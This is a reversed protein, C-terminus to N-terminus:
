LSCSLVGTGGFFQNETGGVMANALIEIRFRSSIQSVFGLQCLFSDKSPTMGLINYHGLTPNTVGLTVPPNKSAGRWGFTSLLMWEQSLQLNVDLTIETECYDLNYADIANIITGATDIENYGNQQMTYYNLGLRPTIELKESEWFRYGIAGHVMFTTSNTTFKYQYNNVGLPLREGNSNGWTGGLLSETFFRKGIATTAYGLMTNTDLTVSAPTLIGGALQDSYQKNNLYGYSIGLTIPGLRKDMGFSFGVGQMDFGNVNNYMPQEAYYGTLQFWGMADPFGLTEYDMSIAEDLSANWSGLLGDDSPRLLEPEGDSKDNGRATTDATGGRGLRNSTHYSMRRTVKQITAFNAMKLMEVAGFTFAPSYQQLILDAQENTTASRLNTMLADLTPNGAGPVYNAEIARALDITTDSTGTVIEDLTFFEATMKNGTVTIDYFLTDFSHTANNVLTDTAYLINYDIGPTVDAGILDFKANEEIVIDGVTAKFKANGTSANDQDIYMVMLAEDTNAAEGITLLDAADAAEVTAGTSLHLTGSKFYIQDASGDNATPNQAVTDTNMRISGLLTSNEITLVDAGTGTAVAGTSTAGETLTYQDSPPSAVAMNRSRFAYGAKDSTSSAALSSAAIRGGKVTVDMPVTEALFAVADETQSAVSISGTVNGLTMSTGATGVTAVGWADAYANVVMNTSLTGIDLVPAASSTTSDLTSLIGAGNGSAQVNIEGALNGYVRLENHSAIGWADGSQTENTTVAINLLHQKTAPDTATGITVDNGYIAAAYDRATINLNASLIEEIIVGGPMAIPPNTAPDVPDYVIGEGGLNWIGYAEEPTRTGGATGTGINLTTNDMKEILLTADTITDFELDLGAGIGIALVEADVNITSALNEIEVRGTNYLGTPTTPPNAADPLVGLAFIGAASDNTIATINSTNLITLWGNGILDPDPLTPAGGAAPNLEELPLEGTVGGVLGVALRGTGTVSLNGPNRTADLVVNEGALATIGFIRDGEHGIATLNGTLMIRRLSPLGTPASAPLLILVGAHGRADISAPATAVKADFVYDGFVEFHGNAIQVGADNVPNIASAAATDWGYAPQWTATSLIAVTEGSTMENLAGDWFQDTNAALPSSPSLAYNIPTEGDALWTDAAAFSTLSALLLSFMLIPVKRM